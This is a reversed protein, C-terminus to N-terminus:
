LGNIYNIIQAINMTKQAAGIEIAKFPMGFIISSEKDQAITAAGSELMALLGRAGDNGMGTLIIGSANKGVSESVSHFLIDVSPKHRNFPPDDNIEVAYGTGSHRILMQRNGPAILATGKYLRDGHEAEKVLIKSSMDIREAFAKTFGEPMHQVIVIAPVETGISTLIDFLVPVGGASAGIAVVRDSIIKSPEIKKVLIEKELLLENKVKITSKSASVLKEILRQSFDLLAEKSSIDEYKPKQIFDIAGLQMAKIAQVSGETTFNSVMIVPMPRSSMIKALFTLGDMRPMEVDLTIIDPHLANIKKVAFYPDISTGVVEFEPSSSIVDTLFQRMVASDDVILVKTKKM